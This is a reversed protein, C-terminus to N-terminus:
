KYQYETKRLCIRLITRSLHMYKELVALKWSFISTQNEHLSLFSWLTKDKFYPQYVVLALQLSVHLLSANQHQPRPHLLSPHTPVFGLAWLRTHSEPVRLNPKSTYSHFKNDNTKEKERERLKNISTKGLFANQSYKTWPINVLTVHPFFLVFVKWPWILKKVAM